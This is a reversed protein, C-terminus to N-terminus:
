FFGDVQEGKLYSSLEAFDGQVFEVKDEWPALRTKALSLAVPDKDCAIYRKIEPHAQLIAEAHGGAGVTGEFFTSLHCGEFGEVCEKLMVSIHDSKM